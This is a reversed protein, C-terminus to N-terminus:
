VSHKEEKLFVLYNELKFTFKKIGPSLSQGARGREKSIQMRRDMM